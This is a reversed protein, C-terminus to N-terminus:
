AFHIHRNMTEHQKRIHITGSGDQVNRVEHHIIHLGLALDSRLLDSVNGLLPRVYTFNFHAVTKIVPLQKGKTKISFPDPECFIRLFGYTVKVRM